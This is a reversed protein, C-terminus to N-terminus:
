AEDETWDDDETYHDGQQEVYGDYATEAQDLGNHILEGILPLLELPISSLSISLKPDGPREPDEIIEALVLPQIGLAVERLEINSSSYESGFFNLTVAFENDELQETM